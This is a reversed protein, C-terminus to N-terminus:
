AFYILDNEEDIAINTGCYITCGKSMHKAYVQEEWFRLQTKPNIIYKKNLKYVTANGDSENESVLDTPVYADYKIESDKDLKEKFEVVKVNEIVLLDERRGLSLYEKPRILGNYIEEFYTEDEPKIHIVLEVESVLEINAPGINFGTTIGNSSTLKLQHRGDEYYGPKFEYRTYLENAKSYYTGQISVKM